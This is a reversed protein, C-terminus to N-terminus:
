FGVLDKIAAAANTPIVKRALFDGLDKFRAKTRAAIIAQARDAGIQPLRDLERVTALNLNVKGDSTATSPPEPEKHRELCEKIFDQYIKDTAKSASKLSNWEDACLKMLEQQTRTPAESACALALLVTVLGGLLRGATM